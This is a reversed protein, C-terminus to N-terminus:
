GLPVQWTAITGEPENARLEAAGDHVRAREVLNRLGNGASPGDHHIGVGNDTVSVHLTQDSVEIAVTTATARAHKAVNTLLERIVDVAERALDDPVLALVGKTLLSPQHGLLRSSEALVLRVAPEFGAHLGRPSHITFIAGRIEKIAEDIEDIVSMVRQDTDPRGIAAQLHLGAAFLRQIVNDHLDRAIRDREDVVALRATTVNLQRVIALRETIERVSALVVQSGDIDVPSLAIEVPVESGDRHIAALELGAGMLRPRPGSGYGARYGQHPDKLSDPVLVEVRQGVLEAPPWGLVDKTRRNAYCIVGTDDVVVTADPAADLVMWRPDDPHVDM